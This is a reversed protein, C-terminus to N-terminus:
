RGQGGLTSAAHRKGAKHVKRVKADLEDSVPTAPRTVGFGMRTEAIEITSSGSMSSSTM